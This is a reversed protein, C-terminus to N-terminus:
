RVPRPAYCCATSSGRKQSRDLCSGLGWRRELRDAVAPRQPEFNQWGRTPLTSCHLHDESPTQQRDENSAASGSRLFFRNNRQGCFPCLVVENLNTIPFAARCGACHIAQGVSPNLGHSMPLGGVHWRNVAVAAVGRGDSGMTGVRRLREVIRTIIQTRLM